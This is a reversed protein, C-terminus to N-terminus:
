GREVRNGGFIIVLYNKSVSICGPECDSVHVFMYFILHENEVISLFMCEFRRINSNCCLKGRM